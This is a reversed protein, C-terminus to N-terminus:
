LNEIRSLCQKGLLHVKLAPIDVVLREVTGTLTGILEAKIVCQAYINEGMVFPLLLFLIKKM